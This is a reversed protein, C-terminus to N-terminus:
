CSDHITGSSQEKGRKGRVFARACVSRGRSAQQVTTPTSAAALSAWPSAATASSHPPPGRPPLAPGLLTWTSHLPSSGTLARTVSGTDDVWSSHTMLSGDLSSGVVATVSVHM